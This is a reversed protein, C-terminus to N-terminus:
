PKTKGDHEKLKTAARDFQAGTVGEEALFTAALEFRKTLSYKTVVVGLLFGLLLAVLEFVFYM